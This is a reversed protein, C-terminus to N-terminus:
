GDSVLLVQETTGVLFTELCQGIDGPPCFQGQNLVVTKSLIMVINHLTKDRWSFKRPCAEHGHKTCHICMILVPYGTTFSDNKM